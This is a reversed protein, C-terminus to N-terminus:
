ARKNEKSSAASVLWYIWFVIWAYSIALTLPHM